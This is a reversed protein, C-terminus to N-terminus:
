RLCFPHPSDLAERPGLNLEHQNRLDRDVAEDGTSDSYRRSGSQSWGLRLQPDFRLGDELRYSSADTVNPGGGM